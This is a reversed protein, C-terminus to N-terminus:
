ALLAGGLQLVLISLDDIQQQMMEKETPPAPPRSALEAAKEEDTTRVVVGDVIKYNHCGNEDLAAYKIHVHAHYDENGSEVIIDTDLPQEFVSSFFREVLGNSPRAYITNKCDM